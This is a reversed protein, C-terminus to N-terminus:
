HTSFKAKNQAVVLMFSPNGILLIIVGGLPYRKGWNEKISLGALIVFNSSLAFRQDVLVVICLYESTLWAVKTSLEGRYGEALMVEIQRELM